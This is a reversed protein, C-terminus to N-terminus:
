RAASRKKTTPKTATQKAVATKAASDFLEQNIPSRLRDNNLLKLLLNIRAEEVIIKGQKVTLGWGEDINVKILSAVYHPQLYYGAKRISALKRLHFFNVGVHKRILDVDTLFSLEELKKLLEDGHDIMGQKFNMSSEFERKNAILITNGAVFFDFRPDIMFIESDDLDKLKADKFWLAKTAIARKPQTLANIKRWAFFTTDGLEYQIVYAWSNLLDAYTQARQNKFGEDIAAKVKTFDTADASITLLVDDNDANTFAYEELHFAKGQLQNKAYNRFRKKLSADLDVRLVAYNPERRSVKRKVLWFTVDCKALDITKLAQYVATSKNPM